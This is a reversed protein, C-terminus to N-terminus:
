VITDHGQILTKGGLDLDCNVCPIKKGLGNGEVPLKSPSSVECLQQGHCRPQQQPPYKDWLSM